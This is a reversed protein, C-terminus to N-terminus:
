TRKIATAAKLWGTMAIELEALAETRTEGFASCAEFEPVDAIYGGDEASYFIDIHYDRM